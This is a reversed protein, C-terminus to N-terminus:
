DGAGTLMGGRRSKSLGDDCPKTLDFSMYVLQGTRFAEFVTSGRVAAFDLFSPQLVRPILRRILDFKRDDDKELAAIINPTIDTERLVTLGSNRLASRWADTETRSRFDAYLFHGGSRLVRCVESLFKEFSPYCHSSEVNVVADFTGENFPLHEADGTRFELGPVRHMAESFRVANRSLDVGVMRAPHLYRKIFSAGGCRGSGVELVSQGKLDVAGAVHDYLQVSNRDREDGPKLALAEGDNAAYGYNMFTWEPARQSGALYEYWTRWLVKKFGPVECLAIFIKGLM